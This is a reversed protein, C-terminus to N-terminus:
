VGGGRNGLLIIQYHRQLFYVTADGPVSAGTLKVKYKLWASPQPPLDAGQCDEM